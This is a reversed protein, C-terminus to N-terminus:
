GQSLRILFQRAHFVTQGFAAAITVEMDVSWEIAKRGSVLAAKSRRLRECDFVSKANPVPKADRTPDDDM